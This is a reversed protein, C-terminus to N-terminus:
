RVLIARRRSLWALHVRKLGTAQPPDMEPIVPHIREWLHAPIECIAPLTETKGAM